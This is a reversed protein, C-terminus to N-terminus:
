IRQKEDPNKTLFRKISLGVILVLAGGNSLLSFTRGYHEPDYYSVPSNWTWDSFPYFLPRPDEAHTLFDVVTHGLWGVLLWLFIKRRDHRRLRLLAYLGLLLLPGTAAHLAYGTAGFPGTEYIASLAEETHM